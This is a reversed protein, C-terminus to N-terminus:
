GHDLDKRSHRVRTMPGSEQNDATELLPDDDWNEEDPDVEADEPDFVEEEENDLLRLNPIANFIYHGM